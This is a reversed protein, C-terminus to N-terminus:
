ARQAREGCLGVPSADGQRPNVVIWEGEKLQVTRGDAIVHYDVHKVNSM